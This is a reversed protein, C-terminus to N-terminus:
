GLRVLMVGAALSAVVPIAQWLLFGYFLLGIAIAPQDAQAGIRDRLESLDAALSRLRREVRALDDDSATLALGIADLDVALGQLQQSTASFDDALGILPRAGFISISMADALDASTAAAERSLSAADSASSRAQEMSRGFGDFADAATAAVRSASSMTSVASSIMGEVRGIAPGGIAVAGAIVLLGLVGYAVLVRGLIRRQRATLKIV